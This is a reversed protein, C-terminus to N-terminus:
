FGLGATPVAGSIQYGSGAGMGPPMGPPPAGMGAMEPLEGPGGPGGPMGPGGPGGAGQTGGGALPPPATAARARVVPMRLSAQRMKRARALAQQARARNAPEFRISDEYAAVALDYAQLKEFQRGMDIMKIAKDMDAAPDVGCVPGGAPAAAPAGGMGGPMGPGGPGGPAGGADGPPGGPGAPPAGGGGRGPKGGSDGGEDGGEGDDKLKGGVGPSGGSDEDEGGGGCGVIPLALLMLLLALLLKKLLM